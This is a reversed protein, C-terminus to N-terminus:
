AGHRLGERAITVITLLGAGLEAAEELTYDEAGAMTGVWVSQTGHERKLCVFGDLEDLTVEVAGSLAVM